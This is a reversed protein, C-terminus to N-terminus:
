TYTTCCHVLGSLGELLILARSQSQHLWYHHLLLLLLSTGDAAAGRVCAAAPTHGPGTPAAGQVWGLLQLSRWCSCCYCLYDAAM